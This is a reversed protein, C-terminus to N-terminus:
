VKEYFYLYGYDLADTISAARSVSSDSIHWWVNNKKIDSTYHGGFVGGSHRVISKVRYKQNKITIEEPVHVACDIKHQSFVGDKYEKEFRKLELIFRQPLPEIVARERSPVFWGEQFTAPDGMEPHPQLTLTDDLLQQGLADPKLPFDIKIVCTSGDMKTRCRNAPMSSLKQNPDSTTASIKRKDELAEQHVLKLSADDPEYPKYEKEVGREFFLAPYHHGPVWNLLAGLIETADAQGYEQGVPMLNRLANLLHGSSWWTRDKMPVVCIKDAEAKRYAEEAGIFARFAELNKEVARKKEIIFGKIADDTKFEKFEAMLLDLNENKGGGLIALLNPYKARQIELLPIISSKERLFAQLVHPILDQTFVESSDVKLWEILKILAEHQAAANQLSEKLARCLEADNMIMQFTSNIFCTNGENHLGIPQGAEFVAPPALPIVPLHGLNMARMEAEADDKFNQGIPGLVASVVFLAITPLTLSAQFFIISGLTAMAAIAALGSLVVFLDGILISRQIKNATAWAEATLIPANAAPTPVLSVVPSAPPVPLLTAM